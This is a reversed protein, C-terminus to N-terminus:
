AVTYYSKRKDQTKVIKGDSVMKTFMATIKPSTLPEGNEKVYNKVTESQAMLEGVTVPNDINALEQLLMECIAIDETNKKENAKSNKRSLIDKENIAYKVIDSSTIGNVTIENDTFYAELAECIMKKTVKTKEM